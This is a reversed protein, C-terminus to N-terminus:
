IYIVVFGYLTDFSFTAGTLFAGATIRDRYYSTGSTANGYQQFLTDVPMLNAGISAAKPQASLLNDYHWIVEGTHADIFYVPWSENETGDERKLQVRWVLHDRDWPEAAGPAIQVLYDHELVYLEA